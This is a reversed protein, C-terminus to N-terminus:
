THLPKCCKLVRFGAKKEITDCQGALDRLFAELSKAGQKTRIVAVLCGGATLSHYAEALLPYVVAKGTRIPPNTLVWDFAIREPLAHIGDGLFVKAHEIGNKSLNQRALECARENVDVMYVFGGPGVMNAAVLGIPGYGCGLDLITQGPELTLTDILIRTGTDVDDKSFVGADTQFFYTKGRLETSFERPEHKASPKGTFYHDNM